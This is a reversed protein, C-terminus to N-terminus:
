RRPDRFWCHESASRSRQMPSCAITRVLRVSVVAKAAASAALGRDSMPWSSGARRRASSRETLPQRFFFEAQSGSVPSATVRPSSRRTAGHSRGYASFRARYGRLTPARECCIAVSRCNESLWEGFADGAAPAPRSGNTSLRQAPPLLPQTQGTESSAGGHGTPLSLPPTNAHWHQTEVPGRPSSRPVPGTTWWVRPSHGLPMM